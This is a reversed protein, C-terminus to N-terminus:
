MTHMYQCTCMPTAHTCVHVYTHVFEDFYIFVFGSVIKWVCRYTFVCITLNLSGWIYTYISIFPMICTNSYFHLSRELFFFICMVEYVEYICIHSFIPGWVHTHICNSSLLSRELHFGWFIHIVCMQSLHCVSSCAHRFFFLNSMVTIVTWTLLDVFLTVCRHFIYSVCKYFGLLYAQRVYSIHIHCARNATHPMYACVLFTYSVWECYRYGVLLHGYKYWTVVYVCGCL